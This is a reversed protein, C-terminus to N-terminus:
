HYKSSLNTIYYVDWAKNQMKNLNNYKLETWSRNHSLQTFLCTIDIKTYQAVSNQTVYLFMAVMKWLYIDLWTEDPVFLISQAIRILELCEQKERM